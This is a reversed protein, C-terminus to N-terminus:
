IYPIAVILLSRLILPRQQLLARYFLSYEALLGIIKHLRRITAVGCRLGTSCVRYLAVTGMLFVCEDALSLEAVSATCEWVRAHVYICSYIYMYTYKNIHIYRCAYIYRDIYRDIWIYISANAIYMRVCVFMCVSMCAYVYMYGYIYVYLCTYVYLCVFLLLLLLLSWLVLLVWPLSLLLFDDHYYVYYYSIM